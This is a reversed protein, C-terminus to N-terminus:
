HNRYQIFSITIMQALIKDDGKLNNGESSGEDKKSKLTELDRPNDGFIYATNFRIDDNQDNNDLFEVYKTNRDLFPDFSDQHRQDRTWKAAWARASGEGSISELIKLHRQTEEEAQFHEIYDKTATWIAMKMTFYSVVTGIIIAVIAIITRIPGCDWCALFKVCNVILNINSVPAHYQFFVNATRGCPPAFQYVITSSSTVPTQPQPQGQPLSAVTLNGVGLSATPPRLNQKVAASTTSASNGLNNM